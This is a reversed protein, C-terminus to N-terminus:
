RCEVGTASDIAVGRPEPADAVRRSSRGSREMAVASTSSSKMVLHRLRRISFGVVIYRRRKRLRRMCVRSAGRRAAAAYAAAASADTTSAPIRSAAAAADTSVPICLPSQIATFAAIRAWINEPIKATM